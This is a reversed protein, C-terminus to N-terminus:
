VIAMPFTFCVQNTKGANLQWMVIVQIKPYSDRVDFSSKYTLAQGPSIPCNINSDKCADPNPLPYPVAIGSIIGFVESKLTDSNNRPTFDIEVHVTEGHKFSCPQTPCPSIRVATAHAFDGTAKPCDKYEITESAVLFLSISICVTIKLMM